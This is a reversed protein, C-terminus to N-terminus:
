GVSERSITSNIELFQAANSALRGGIGVLSTDLGVKTGLSQSRSRLSNNRRELARSPLSDAILQRRDTARRQLEELIIIRARNTEVNDGVLQQAIQSM